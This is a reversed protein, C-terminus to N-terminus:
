TTQSRLTSNSLEYSAAGVRYGNLACDVAKYWEVETATTFHGNGGPINLTAQKEATIRNKFNSARDTFHYIRSLHHVATLALIACPFGENSHIDDDSLQEETFGGAIMFEKTAGYDILCDLANNTLITQQWTMYTSRMDKFTAPTVLGVKCGNGTQEKIYRVLQPALTVDEERGDDSSTKYMQFTVLDWNHATLVNAFSVGGTNTWTDTNHAYSYIEINKIGTIVEEVYDKITYSGIYAIGIEFDVKEGYLSKLVYPIYAAADQNVSNGCFLCSIKRSNKEILPIIDQEINCLEKLYVENNRSVAIKNVGRPIHYYMDDKPLDVPTDVISGIFVNDNWLSILSFGSSSFDEKFKFRLSHGESVTYYKTTVMSNPTVNGYIDITVNSSSVEEQLTYKTINPVIDQGINYLTVRRVIQDRSVALINVGSPIVIKINDKPLMVPTEVVTEVFNTNNWYSVLAFGSSSFNEEFQIEYTEGDSVQYYRTIFESPIKVGTNSIIVKEQSSTETIEKKSIHENINDINGEINNINGEINDINGKINNIQEEINDIKKANFLSNLLIGDKYIKVTIPTDRSVPISNKTLITIDISDKDYVFAYKENEKFDATLTRKSDKDHFILTGESIGTVIFYSNFDSDGQSPIRVSWYYKGSLITDNYELILEGIISDNVGGSKVLNNSDPTPVDDVGQWNAPTTNFSDSMLRWQVYKNDSSQVFRISMGGHRVSTPILTSLNESSLLASLSSFTTGDNNATVDYIVESELESLKNDTEKLANQVNTGSFSTGTNNFGVEAADSKALIEAERAAVAQISKAEQEKIQNVVDQADLTGAFLTWGPNVINKDNIPPVGVIPSESVVQYSGRKYQVINDKYYTISAEYEGRTVPIRGLEKTIEAM